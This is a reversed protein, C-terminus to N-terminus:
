EALSEISMACCSVFIISLHSVKIPKLKAQTDAQTRKKKEDAQSKITSGNHSRASGSDISVFIDFNGYNM